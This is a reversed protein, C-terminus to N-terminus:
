SHTEGDVWRQIKGDWEANTLVKNTSNRKWKNKGEFIAAIKAEQDMYEKEHISILPKETCGECKPKNYDCGQGEEGNWNCWHIELYQGTIPKHCWQCSVTIM